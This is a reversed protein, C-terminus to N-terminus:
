EESKVRKYAEYVAKIGTKLPYKPKGALATLHSVDLRKVPTGDPKEPDFQLDGKFGVVRAIMRALELISM